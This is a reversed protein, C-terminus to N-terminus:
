AQSICTKKFNEPFHLNLDHDEPDNYWTAKYTSATTESSISGLRPRHSNYPLFIVRNLLM